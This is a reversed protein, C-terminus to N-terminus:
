RRQFNLRQICYTFLFAFALPFAILIVAVVALRDHHFGFYDKLFTAVTKTEGFVLIDRHIDGYQSTLMGTISWSTPTLYFLWLWWKPVQPQPILFGAFLNFITYFASSLISAVPFSPTMAVLLMGLYNYYLLTCFMAYFYWFIKYVSWYYGIM